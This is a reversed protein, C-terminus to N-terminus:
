TIIMCEIGSHFYDGFTVKGSGHIQMGNFNCNNGVYTNQSFSCYNNVKCNEGVHKAVMKLQQLQKKRRHAVKKSNIFLSVRYKFSNYIRRLINM